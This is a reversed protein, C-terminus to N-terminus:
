KKDVSNLFDRVVKVNEDRADWSTVHAAGRFLYFQSGPVSGAFGKVSEVGSTDFEGVTFLTPVKVSPLDSTSDYNKLTGTIKFESPGQMYMYMDFNYTSMMSDLDEPVPKRFGYLRNYENNAAEFLPDAFNGTEGARKVALQLSDPFTKLLKNANQEWTKVNLAPSSFIISKVSAPYKKYYEMAVITGWSQGLLHWKRIKLHKRLMELEDVFRGIKFLTTDTVRDSKGSGLQDYRIVQRDNGLEEFPKLYFSSMGPGGHILVLPIGNGEGSIKYWINGGTVALKNEGTPLKEKSCSFQMLTISAFIVLVFFRGITKM